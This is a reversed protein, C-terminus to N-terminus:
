TDKQKKKETDTQIGAMYFINYKLKDYGVYGIASESFASEFDEQNLNKWQNSHWKKIASATELESHRNIQAWKRNWPCVDACIDCGVIYNCLKDQFAESITTKCEITLYSICRNADLREESLAQTPCSDICKQCNGCHNKIPLDYETEANMMLIGIFVYSGLGPHILQKNKGIWGLGAKEAWRRELVPASDVFIHQVENNFCDKGFKEGIAKELEYLKTKIVKHYDVKSYAYKAIQPADSPQKESPFYNMLVAIVSQCGPVLLKPNVRKDFNRELYKMNGHYGGKLWSQLYIADASLMEAKAIGCADFGLSLATKIIFNRM